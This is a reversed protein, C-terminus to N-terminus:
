SNTAWPGSSSHLSLTGPHDADTDQSTVLSRGSFYQLLAVPLCFFFFFFFINECERTKGLFSSSLFDGSSQVSAVFADHRM